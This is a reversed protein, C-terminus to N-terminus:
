KRIAEENSVDFRRKWESFELQELEADLKRWWEYKEVRFKRWLEEEAAEYERWRVEFLPDMSM